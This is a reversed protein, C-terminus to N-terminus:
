EKMNQYFYSPTEDIEPEVSLFESDSSTERADLGDNIDFDYNTNSRLYDLEPNSVEDYNQSQNSSESLTQEEVEKVDETETNEQLHRKKIVCCVIIIACAIVFALSCIIIGIIAGYSLPSRLSQSFTSVQTSVRKTGKICGTGTYTFMVYSETSKKDINIVFYFPKTYDNQYNARIIHQLENPSEYVYIYGNNDPFTPFFSVSLVECKPFPFVCQNNSEPYIVFTDTASNTITIEGRCKESLVATQLRIKAQKSAYINVLGSYNGFDIFPNTSSCNSSDFFTSKLYTDDDGKKLYHASVVTNKFNQIMVYFYSTSQFCITETPELDYEYYTIGKPPIIKELCQSYTFAFLIILM